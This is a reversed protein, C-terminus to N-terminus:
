SNKKAALCLFYDRLGDAITKALKEQYADQLLLKREEPHTMFGMEVLAAPIKATRLLFFDATRPEREAHEGEKKYQVVMGNLQGQLCEALIKGAQKEKHYFVFCGRTRNAARCSNVHLSIFADAGSNNVINKRGDLDRHYRKLGANGSQTVDKDMTRTMVVEAGAMTLIERLKLAVQLNVDKEKFGSDNAGSDVGGHGADIVLKKGALPYYAKKALVQMTLGGMGAAAVIALGLVLLFSRKFIVLVSKGM